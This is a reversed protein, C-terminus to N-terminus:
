LLHGFARKSSLAIKCWCDVAGGTHLELHYEERKKIMRAKAAKAVPDTVFIMVLTVLNISFLRWDGSSSAAQLHDNDGERSTLRCPSEVWGSWPPGRTETHADHGSVRRLLDCLVGSYQQLFFNRKERELTSILNSYAAINWRKSNEVYRVSTNMLLSTSMSIQPSLEVWIERLFGQRMGSYLPLPALRSSHSSYSPGFSGKGCILPFVVSLSLSSSIYSLTSSKEIGAIDPFSEPLAFLRIRQHREPRQSQIRAKPLSATAFSDAPCFDPRLMRMWFAEGAFSSESATQSVRGTLVKTRVNSVPTKERGFSIKLPRLVQSAFPFDQCLLRM